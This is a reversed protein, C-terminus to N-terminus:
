EGAVPREGLPIQFVVCVILGEDMVFLHSRRRLTRSTMIPTGSRRLGFAWGGRWCQHFLSGQDHLAQHGTAPCGALGPAVEVRETVPRGRRSRERVM